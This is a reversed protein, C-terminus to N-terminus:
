CNPERRKAKKSTPNVYATIDARARPALQDSDLSCSRYFRKGLHDVINPFGGIWRQGDRLM